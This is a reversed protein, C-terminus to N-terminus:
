SDEGILPSTLFSSLTSSIIAYSSSEKVPVFTIWEYTHKPIMPIM